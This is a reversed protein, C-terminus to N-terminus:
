TTQSLVIKSLQAIPSAKPIISVRPRIAMISAASAM